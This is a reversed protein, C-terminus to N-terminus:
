EGHKVLVTMRFAGLVKRASYNYAEITPLRKAPAVIGSRRQYTPGSHQQVDVRFQQGSIVTQPLQLTLLGPLTSVTPSPVPIYTTGQAACAITNTDVKTLLQPGPRTSGALQLIQDASLDPFDINASTNAPIDYWRIVM